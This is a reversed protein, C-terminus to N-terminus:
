RHVPGFGRLRCPASPMTPREVRWKTVNEFRDAGHGSTRTSHRIPPGSGAQGAAPASGGRAAAPGLGYQQRRRAYAALTGM